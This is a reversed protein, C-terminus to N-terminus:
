THIRRDLYWKRRTPPFKEIAYRLMTRPMNAAHKQLFAEEVSQNEKGMERLMWGTAKHILDHEDKLLLTAVAVTPEFNGRKIFAYTAIIAIRREWLNKSTALTRLLSWSRNLLYLGLIQHASSDVIDWNNVWKTNALYAKVIKARAPEDAKKMQEALIMVATLRHEHIPSRLLQLVEQLPLHRYKKVLQRQEPVTVGLFIDGHGYQGKNTKFFWASSKAKASNSRKKLDARIEQVTM